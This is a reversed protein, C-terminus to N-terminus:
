EVTITALKRRAYRLEMSIFSEIRLRERFEIVPEITKGSGVTIIGTDKADIAKEPYVMSMFRPVFNFADKSTGKISAKLHDPVLDLIKMEFQGAQIVADKMEKGNIRIAM